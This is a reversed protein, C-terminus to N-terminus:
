RMLKQITKILDDISQKDGNKIEEVVCTSIHNALLEKNFSHLASQIATVQILIDTCYADEQLMRQIGRVQGEIRKLRNNLKSFEEDDRHKTKRHCLCTNDKDNLQNNNEPNDNSELNISSLKSNTM